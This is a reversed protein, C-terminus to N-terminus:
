TGSAGRWRSKRPSFFHGARGRSRHSASLEGVVRAMDPTMHELVGVRLEIPKVTPGDHVGIEYWDNLLPAAPPECISLKFQAPFSGEVEVSDAGTLDTPHALV